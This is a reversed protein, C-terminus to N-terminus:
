GDIPRPPLKSWRLNILTRQSCTQQHSTLVRDYLVLANSQSLMGEYWTFNWKELEPEEVKFVDEPSKPKHGRAKRAITFTFDSDPGGKRAESGNVPAHVELRIDFYQGAIFEARNLTLYLM